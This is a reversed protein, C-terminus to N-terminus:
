RDGPVIRRALSRVTPMRPSPRMPLRKACRARLQKARTIAQSGYMMSPSKGAYTSRTVSSASNSRLSMTDSCTGSFSSVRPM